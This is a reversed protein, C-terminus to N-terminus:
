NGFVSFKQTLYESHKDEKFLEVMQTPKMLYCKEFLFELSEQVIQLSPLKQHLAFAVQLPSAHHCASIRMCSSSVKFQRLLHIWNGDTPLSTGHVTLNLPPQCNLSSIAGDSRLWQAKGENSSTTLGVIKYTAELYSDAFARASMELAGDQLLFQIEEKRDVEEGLKIICLHVKHLEEAHSAASAKLAEVEARLDTFENSSEIEM